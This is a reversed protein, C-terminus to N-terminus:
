AASFKGRCDGQALTKLPCHRVSWRVTAQCQREASTYDEWWVGGLGASQLVSGSGRPRTLEQTNFLQLWQSAFHSVTKSLVKDESSHRESGQWCSAAARRWSTRVLFYSYNWKVLVLNHCLVDFPGSLMKCRELTGQPFPNTSGNKVCLSAQFSQFTGWAKCKFLM